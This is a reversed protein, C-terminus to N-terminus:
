AGLLEDYTMVLVFYKVEGFFNGVALHTAPVNNRPSPLQHCNETQM